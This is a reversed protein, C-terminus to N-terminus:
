NQLLISCFICLNGKCVSTGMRAHGTGSDTDELLATSTNCISLQYQCTTIVCYAYNLNKMKIEKTELMNM